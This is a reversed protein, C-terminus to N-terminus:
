THTTKGMNTYLARDEISCGLIDLDVAGVLLELCITLAAHFLDSRFMEGCFKQLPFATNEDADASDVSIGLHSLVILSSDVCVSRSFHYAPWYAGKIAVQLHIALLFHRILLDLFAVPFGAHQINPSM